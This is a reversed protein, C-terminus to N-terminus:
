RGTVTMRGVMGEAEWHPGCLYPYDGPPLDVTMEVAEGPFVRESEPKGADKFWVSHSTRRDVNVWRVVTGQRVTVAAPCFTNNFMPVVAVPEDRPVKGFLQRYRAEADACFQRREAETPAAAAPALGAFGVALAVAAKAAGSRRGDRGM